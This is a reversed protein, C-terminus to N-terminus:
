WGKVEFLIREGDTKAHAYEDNNLAKWNGGFKETSFVARDNEVKYFISHYDDDSKSVKRFAYLDEGNSIFVNLSTYEYKKEIDEVAKKMADVTDVNDSLHSLFREFYFQTDIISSKPFNKISGNHAFSWDKGSSLSVFPHTFSTKIESSTTKRAHIIAIKAKESNIKFQWIAKSSKKLVFEDQTYLAMGWGDGHPSFSGNKAQEILANFYPEINVSEISIVSVMRCMKIVM